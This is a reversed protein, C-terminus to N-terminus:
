NVSQGADVVLARATEAEPTWWWSMDGGPEFRRELWGAEASLSSTGPELGPDGMLRKDQL